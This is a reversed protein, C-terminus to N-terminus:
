LEQTYEIGLPYGPVLERPFFFPGTVSDLLLEIVDTGPADRVPLLRTSLGSCRTLQNIM